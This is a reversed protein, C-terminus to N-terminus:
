KRSFIISVSKSEHSGPRPSTLEIGQVNLGTETQFRNIVVEIEAELWKMKDKLVRLEHKELNEM